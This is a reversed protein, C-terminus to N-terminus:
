WSLSKPNSVGLPVCAAGTTHGMLTMGSVSDSPGIVVISAKFTAEPNWLNNGTDTRARREKDM